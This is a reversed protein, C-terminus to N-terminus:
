LHADIAKILENGFLVNGLDTLHVNDSYFCEVYQPIFKEANIHIINEIDKTVDYLIKRLEAISITDSNKKDSDVIDDNERKKELFNLDPPLIYFIKKDPYVEKLRLFFERALKGNYLRGSAWDNVGYNVCIFEPDSVTKEIIEKRFIQGGVSQNILNVDFYDSLMNIYTNQFHMPNYGQFGSDGLALVKKERKHPLYDSPLNVNKIMTVVTAPFYITIKKFEESYPVTYEFVNETDNKEESKNYRYYGDELLDISYYERRIGPIIKYDFSIEGGKTYFELKVSATSNVRGMLEPNLNRYFESQTDSFRLASIYGDKEETKLTGLLVKDLADKNLLM